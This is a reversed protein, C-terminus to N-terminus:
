KGNSTGVNTWVHGGQAPLEIHRRDVTRYTAASLQLICVINVYHVHKVDKSQKMDM